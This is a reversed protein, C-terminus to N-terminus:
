LAYQKENSENHKSIGPRRIRVSQWPFTDYTHANLSQMSHSHSVSHHFKIRFHIAAFLHHNQFVPLQYFEISIENEMWM